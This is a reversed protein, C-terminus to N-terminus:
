ESNIKRNERRPRKRVSPYELTSCCNFHTWSSDLAQIVIETDFFTHMCSTVFRPMPPLTVPFRLLSQVYHENRKRYHPSSTPVDYVRLAMRSALTVHAEEESSLTHPVNQKKLISQEPHARRECTFPQQEPALSACQETTKVPSNLLALM